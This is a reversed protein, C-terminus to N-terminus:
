PGVCAGKEAGMWVWCWYWNVQVCAGNTVLTVTISGAPTSVVTHFSVSVVGQPLAKTTLKAPSRSTFCTLTWVCAGYQSSISATRSLTGRGGAGGVGGDGGVRGGGGGDGGARGAGGARGGAGGEGGGIDGGGGDIGITDEFILAAPPNLRDQDSTQSPRSSGM